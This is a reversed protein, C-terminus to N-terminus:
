AATGLRDAWEAGFLVRTLWYRKAREAFRESYKKFFRKALRHCPYMLILGCVFSGLVVTNNFGTWPVVPQNYLWTWTEALQPMSLLFHGVAHTVPDVLPSALSVCLITAAAVGLNARTAAMIVGPAIALLNGKPVLGILIGFAFGLALQSPKSDTILAKLILRLPRIILFM